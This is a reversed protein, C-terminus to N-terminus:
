VRYKIIYNLVAFPPMNNHPQGGGTNNITIGTNSTGTNGIFSSTQNGYVDPNDNEISLNGSSINETHNHGPDNITHNHSPIEDITLTHTEAGGTQGINRNSLGIGTGDGVIVRGRLDPLKFNNPNSAVGFTTGIINWLSSYTIKSVEQGNCVLWGEPANTTAYPLVIGIPLYPNNNLTIDHKVNLNDINAKKVELDHIYSYSIDSDSIDTKTINAYKINANSIDTKTINAYKINANSIDATISLLKNTRVHRYLIFRKLQNSNFYSSQNNYEM